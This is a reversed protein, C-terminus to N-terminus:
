PSSDTPQLAARLQDLTYPKRLAKWKFGFEEHLPIASGSAFVVDLEPNMAVARRALEIGSMDPMTVDTLLIQFVENELAHLAHRRM